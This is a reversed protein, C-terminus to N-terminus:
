AMEIFICIVVGTIDYRRSRALSIVDSTSSAQISVGSASTLSVLSHSVHRRVTCIEAKKKFFFVFFLVGAEKLSILEAANEKGDGKLGIGHSM